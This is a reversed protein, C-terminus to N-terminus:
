KRSRHWFSVRDFGSTGYSGALDVALLLPAAIVAPLQLAFLKDISLRMARSVGVRHV